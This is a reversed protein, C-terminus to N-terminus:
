NYRIAMIPRIRSILITPLIMMMVCVILTGANLLLIHSLSFNVPVYSIYYSQQDLHLIGFYKQILILSIAITNGWLMGRGILYGALYIFIKRVNFNPCGIAKLTGILTIRELIIILLASIMNMGSVILMLTIIIFANINQLGLWDFIQPFIEKISRVNLLSGSTNYVKATIEDLKSFDHISIEFGSVEDNKWDNLKQIHAIDCFIYLNDFEELGTKYIGSIQFKRARPPQQIFHMVINDGVHINLKHSLNESILINETRDSDNVRFVNGAILHSQFYTWDFDSGIGKAVVGEIEENSKIIGAKTAFVQIHKIDPDTELVKLFSQNRSIPQTEYSSNEDYFSLQIHSGFGIVKDSIEKKFGTVIAVSILMVAFGLAMGILAIRIIPRSIITEKEKSFAIRRAIFLEYNM